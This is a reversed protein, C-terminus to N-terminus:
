RHRVAAALHRRVLDSTHRVVELGGADGHGPVVAGAQPYRDLLVELSATWGEVVADGLFGLRNWSTSKLLCGGFLFRRAPLWVVTNDPSHGPGPFFIEVSETGTSLALRDEFTTAPPPLDHELALRATEVHGYSSINRRKVESIGGLRDAHFHTSVVAAIKGFSAEAWDLLLSTLRDNWPTDIVITGDPGTIVLGNSSVPRGSWDVTARYLWLGKDLRQLELDDALVTVPASSAAVLCGATSFLSTLLVARMCRQGIM